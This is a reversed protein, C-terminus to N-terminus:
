YSNRDTVCLNNLMDPSIVIKSSLLAIRIPRTFCDGNQRYSRWINVFKFSTYNLLDNNKLHKAIIGQSKDKFVICQRWKESMWRECPLTAVGKLRPPIHLCSNTTSQSGLRDSFLNSFRNINPSTIYLLKTDPNKQSVTNMRDLVARQHWYKILEAKRENKQPQWFDARIPISLVGQLM